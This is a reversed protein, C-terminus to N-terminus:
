WFDYSAIDHYTIHDIKMIVSGDDEVKVQDFWDWNSASMVGGLQQGLMDDLVEDFCCSPCRIRGLFIAMKSRTPKYKMLQTVAEMVELVTIATINKKKRRHSIIVPKFDAIQVIVRTAPPNTANEHAVPLDILRQAELFDSGDVRIASVDTSRPHVLRTSKFLRHSKLKTTVDLPDVAGPKIIFLRKQLEMSPAAKILLHFDKCALQVRSKLDGYRLNEFIMTWIEPNLSHMKFSSALHYFYKCTPKVSTQIQHYPLYSFVELWIEPPLRSAM